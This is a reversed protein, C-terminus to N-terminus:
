YVEGKQSLGGFLLSGRSGGLLEKLNGSRNSSSKLYYAITLSAQRLITYLVTSNNFLM